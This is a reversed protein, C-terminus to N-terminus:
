GKITQALASKLDAYEYQFGLALTRTPLVKQGDLVVTAGEGLLLKLAFNPVPLWSPRQMTQGLVQCFEGMTVPQPATGNVVGSVATNNLAFIILNVLDDRHIWSLWQKGSGIPGGMFMQFPLLMKGVAGGKPGVVIGTRIIVARTNKLSAVEAEWAQCVEALFDQGARSNEDFTATDSTGYYGIASGNILVTPRPDAQNIAEVIKRTTIQRSAKIAEKRATTWRQDAIPTGALNIVADCGSISKQWDGSIQPTYTIIELNPYSDHPFIRRAFEADRTLILIQHDDSYLKEVLRSGVFGTAGAIAIKM